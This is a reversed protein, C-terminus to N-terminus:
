EENEEIQALEETQKFVDKMMEDTKKDFEEAIDDIFDEKDAVLYPIMNQILASSLITYADKPEAKGISLIMRSAFANQLLYEYEDEKNCDKLGQLFSVVTALAKEEKETLRIDVLKNKM